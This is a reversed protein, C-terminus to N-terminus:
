NYKVLIAPRIYINSLEDPFFPMVVGGLLPSISPLGQARVDRLWWEVSYPNRQYNKGLVNLETKKHPEILCVTTAGYQGLLYKDVEPESLLFVKDSTSYSGYSDVVTSVIKDAVEQSFAKEMFEGNLYARIDSSKWTADNDHHYAKTELGYMSLLLKSGRLENEDLVFWLIDEGSEPSNGLYIMDGIKAEELSDCVFYDRIVEPTYEYWTVEKSLPDYQEAQQLELWFRDNTVKIKTEKGEIISTATGDERIDFFREYKWIYAGVEMHSYLASLVMYGYKEVENPKLILEPIDDENIDILTFYEPQIKAGFYESLKQYYDSLLYFTNQLHNYDCPPFAEDVDTNYAHTVGDAETLIAYYRRKSYAQKYSLSEPSTPDEILSTPEDPESPEAPEDAAPADATPTDDVPPTIDDDAKAPADEGCAAFSLLACFCLALALMRILNNKM